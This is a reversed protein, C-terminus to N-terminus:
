SVAGRIPGPYRGHLLRVPLVPKKTSTTFPPNTLIVDFLAPAEEFLGGYDERGTLTNGHWLNPKDIGHKAAELCTEAAARAREVAAMQAQLIAAIRHQENLPPLPIRLRRLFDDPLRQQGVAGTFHNTAEDLVSPQRLFAHIWQPVVDPGPRIVHFETSAFGVRDILGQAIAHKGNQMCPTIKAFLVDGEAFYTYGNAVEVYPRIQREAIVGRVGDVASMPVFSTPAQDERQFGTPRRPNIECVEALKVWRWGTPLDPRSNLIPTTPKTQMGCVDEPKERSSRRRNVAFRNCL